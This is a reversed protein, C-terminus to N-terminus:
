YASCIAYIYVYVTFHDIRLRIRTPLAIVCTFFMSYEELQHIKFWDSRGLSEHRHCKAAFKCVMELIDDHICGDYMHIIVDDNIHSIQNTLSTLTLYSQNLISWHFSAYRLFKWTKQTKNAFTSYIFICNISQIRM